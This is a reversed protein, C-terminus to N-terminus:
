KSLLEIELIKSHLKAARTLAIPDLNGSLDEILALIAKRIHPRTLLKWAQTKSVHWKAGSANFYALALNFQNEQISDVFKQQLKTIQRGM